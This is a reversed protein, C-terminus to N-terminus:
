STIWAQWDSNIEQLTKGTAMKLADSFRIDRAIAAQIKAFVGDGYTQRLYNLVSSGVYYKWGINRGDPATSGIGQMLTPAGYRAVMKRVLATADVPQEEFYRASGEVWWGPVLQKISRESQYQFIHVLEHQIIGYGTFRATDTFAVVAGGWQGSAMGIFSEVWQAPAWDLMDEQSAYVIIHPRYQLKYDFEKSLREISYDTAQTLVAIDAASRDYTFLEAYQTKTQTWKHYREDAYVNFASETRWEKGNSDIFVWWSEFQTWPIQPGFVNSWTFKMELPEGKEKRPVKAEFDFQEIGNNQTLLFRAYQIPVEPTLTVYFVSSQPFNSVYRQSAQIIPRDKRQEASISETLKFTKEGSRYVTGREDTLLWEYLVKDEGPPLKDVSMQNQLKTQKGPKQNTAAVKQDVIQGTLPFTYHFVASKIRVTYPTFRMVFTMQRSIFSTEASDITLAETSAAVTAALNDSAASRPTPTESGTLFAGLTSLAGPTPTSTTEQPAATSSLAAKTQAILAQTTADVTPIPTALQAVTPIADGGSCGSIFAILLFCLWYTRWHVTRLPNGGVFHLAIVRHQLM